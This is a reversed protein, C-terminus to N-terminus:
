SGGNMICAVYMPFVFYDLIIYSAKKYINSPFIHRNYTNTSSLVNVRANNFYILRGIFILFLFKVLLIKKGLLNM